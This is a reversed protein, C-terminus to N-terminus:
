AGAAPPRRLEMAFQILYEFAERKPTRAIEEGAEARIRNLEAPFKLAEPNQVIFWIHFAQFLPPFDGTLAHYALGSEWVVFETQRPDFTLIAASDSDAHKFFNQARKLMRLFEAQFEPRVHTKVIARLSVPQQVGHHKLLDALVEHAASALTHVSVFDRDFYYLNIAMELQRRAADLKSIKHTPM